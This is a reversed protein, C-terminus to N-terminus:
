KGDIDPATPADWSALNIDSFVECSEGCGGGVDLPSQSPMVQNEDHYPVFDQLAAYDRFLQETSKNGRFFTRPRANHYREFEPGVLAYKDEMRRPFDYIEPSEKILTYHKRFTKKWCWTCNGQYGTLNLRFPQGDWWQNVLPKTMPFQSVLPYIIGMEKANVSMRDAEDSRIGIATLFGGKKWGLSDTYSKIATTKLARTCHPFAQNPIGYKKIADEYVSGDRCATAYDVVRHSASKRTGHQQVAEIWVTQFGFHQDCARVFELTNEHEQSTNAFVVKVENYNARVANDNLLRYAMYASTEGGSFSILLNMKAENATDITHTM